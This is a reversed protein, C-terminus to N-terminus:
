PEANFFLLKKDLKVRYLEVIKPRRHTTKLRILGRFADGLRKTVRSRCCFIRPTRDLIPSIGHGTSGQLVFGAFSHNTWRLDAFLRFIGVELVAIGTLKDPVAIPNFTVQYKAAHVMQDPVGTPVASCHLEFWIGRILTVRRVGTQLGQIRAIAQSAERALEALEVLLLLSRCSM